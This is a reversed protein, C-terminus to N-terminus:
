RVFMSAATMVKAKKYSVTPRIICLVRTQAAKKCITTRQKRHTVCLRETAM